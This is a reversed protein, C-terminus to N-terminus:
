PQEQPAAAPRELSPRRRAARRGVDRAAQRRELIIRIRDARGAPGPTTDRVDM